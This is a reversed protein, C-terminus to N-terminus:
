QYHVSYRMDSGVDQSLQKVQTENDDENTRPSVELITKRTYQQTSCPYHYKSNYQAIIQRYDM